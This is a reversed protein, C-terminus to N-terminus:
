NSGHKVTVSASGSLEFQTLNGSFRYADKGGAIAGTAVSGEISDEANISGFEASKEIDGSVGFKYKSVTADSSGDLIIVNPLETTPDTTPQEPTTTPDTTPDTTPEETTPDTTPEETTPDTTPEQPKAAYDDPNVEQGNVYVTAATNSLNMSTISGSFRYKDDGGAVAGTAKTNDIADEPNVTEDIAVDFALEGDVSFEYDTRTGKTGTIRLTNNLGNGLSDPNVENGNVFVQADGRLDFKQIEGDFGYSDVGGYVKGTATKGEISDDVNVSGNMATSHALEGVVTFEYSAEGSTNRGSISLTNPLDPYKPESTPTPTTTSDGSEGGSAAAEPSTPVGEPPKRSPNGSVNTEESPGVIPGDVRCDRVIAKSGDAANIAATGVPNDITIDTNEVLMTCGEKMYIGRSNYPSPHGSSPIDSKDGEVVIVSDKVYSGPTGIRFNSINNNRSYSNEIKVAGGNGHGQQVGPGSGYLGNDAWKQLNANRITLDGKHLKANVWLAGIRTRNASTGDGLYVNEIVASGGATVSPIIIKKPREVNIEGKIGVNRIAWGDGHAQIGVSAGKATVDILVNELTDGDGLKYRKTQGAPVKVTKYNTAAKASGSVAGAAAASAATAGVLKMFTRRGYAAKDSDDERATENRAM